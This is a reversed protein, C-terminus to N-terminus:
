YVKEMIVGVYDITSPIPPSMKKLHIKARRIQPYEALSELITQAANELLKFTNGTFVQRVTQIAEGYDLVRDLRDDKLLSPYSVSLVLDIKFEQGLKNEEPHVGHYAYLRLGNIDIEYEEEKNENNRSM